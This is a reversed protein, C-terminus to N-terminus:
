RHIIVHFVHTAHVDLIGAHVGNESTKMCKLAMSGGLLPKLTDYDSFGLLSYSKYDLSRAIARIM